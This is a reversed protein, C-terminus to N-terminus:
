AYKTRQERRQEEKIEQKIEAKFKEFQERMIQEIEARDAKGYATIQPSFVFQMGDGDGGGSTRSSRYAAQPIESLETTGADRPPLVYLPVGTDTLVGNGWSSLVTGGNYTKAAETLLSTAENDGLYKKLVIPAVDAAISTAALALSGDGAMSNNTVSWLLSAADGATRIGNSRMAYEGYAKGFDILNDLKERSGDTFGGNAFYSVNQPGIARTADEGTVGLMRGARVWHNVNEDHVSRKFSIVAETGAEGAISVGHTFGGNAFAPAPVEALSFGWEKGAIGEPLSIGLIKTPMKIHIKNLARIITNVVSVGISAIGKILGIIGQIVPEIVPLLNHIVDVIVKIANVLTTGVLDIITGILPAVAPFLENVVFSMVDALLPKIHNVGLDVIQSVLGTVSQIIPIAAGFAQGLDVGFMSKGSLKEQINLLNDLSFANKIGDGIKKVDAFFTNFITLGTPGFVKLVIQQIDAFHDGLLSVVAIISGIGAIVPGFTGLLGMFAGGLKGAVPGLVTQGVNLGAGLFQTVDKVGQVAGGGIKVATQGVKSSAINGALTKAGYLANGAFNKVGGVAGKGLGVAKQGISTIFNGLPSNMANQMPGGFIGALSSAIGGVGNKATQGLWKGVGITQQVLNTGHLGKVSNVVSTGYQGLSSGKLMGFLGGSSKAATIQDATKLVNKWLTEPKSTKSTLQKKNKLGFITGIITNEANQLFGGIGSSTVPSGNAQTMSSNALGAGLKAANWMDVTNGAAAGKGFISDKAVSLPGTGKGGGFIRTAGNVVQLIQPAVSMAAFTAATGGIVKTVTASNDYSGNESKVNIFEFFKKVIQWLSELAGGLASIGNQALQALQGTVGAILPANAEVEKAFGVFWDAGQKVVPLFAEGFSERLNRWANHALQISNEATDSRTLYENEMSGQWVYQGNEDKTKIWDLNQELMPINQAIKTASEVARKGFYQGMLSIQQEQPLVKIRSFFDEIAEISNDQMSKAFEVPDLGLKAMVGAESKTAASGATWKLFMNRLSTAASDDDVGTAVLVDAMAAVSSTNVGAMGGLSGVRTVIGALDAATANTNNSLYNLQDALNVIENEALNFAQKWTAMWEGSQKADSDFAIAMKAADATYNLIEPTSTVGSQGFAAAIAGADEFEMPILTTMDKLGSKMEDYHVTFNGNDDKLEDVVKAVEAMTSEYKMADKTADAFFKTTGVALGTMAGLGIKGVNSITKALQGIQGNASKVAQALSNDVRGGILISLELEQNKAM